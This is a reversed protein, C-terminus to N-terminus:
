RRKKRRAAKEARRADAQMKGLLRSGAGSSHSTHTKGSSSTGKFTVGRGGTSTHRYEYGTPYSTNPKRGM